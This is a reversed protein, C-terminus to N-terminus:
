LTSTLKISSSHWRSSASLGVEATPLIPSFPSFDHIISTNLTSPPYTLNRTFQYPKEWLLATTNHRLTLTSTPSLSTPASPRASWSPLLPLLKSIFFSTRNLSITTPCWMPAAESQEFLSSLIPLLSGLDLTSPILSDGWPLYLTFSFLQQQHISSFIALTALFNLVYVYPSLYDPLQWSARLGKLITTVEPLPFSSMKFSSPLSFSHRYLM